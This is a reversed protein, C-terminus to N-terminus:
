YLISVFCRFEWTILSNAFGLWELCANDPYWKINLLTWSFRTSILIPYSRTILSIYWWSNAFPFSFFAKNWCMTGKAMRDLDCGHAVFGNNSFELLYMPLFVTQGSSCFLWNTSNRFHAWWTCILWAKGSHLFWLCIACICSKCYCSVM